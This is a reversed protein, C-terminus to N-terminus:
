RTAAVQRWSGSSDSLLAALTGAAYRAFRDAGLRNFHIADGEAYFEPGIVSSAAGDILPLNHRKAVAAIRANFRRYGELVVSVPVGVVTNAWRQVIADSAAVSDGGSVHVVTMLVVPIGRTRAVALFTELDREFRAAGKNLVDNWDPVSRAGAREQRAKFQLARVRGVVKAYLLSNVELWARWPAVPEAQGPRHKDRRGGRLAGIFTAHLDNHGHYLVLVDPQFDALDTEFRILNDVVTYGSVGGNLVMGTFGPGDERLCAELRAPWARLDPSVSTDFTTSEGLVLITPRGGAVRRGDDTWRFGATDTRFWGFYSFDRVLAHRLRAHRYYLTPMIGPVTERHREGYRVIVEAVALSLGAALGLAAAFM